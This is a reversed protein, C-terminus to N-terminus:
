GTLRKFSSVADPNNALLEYLTKGNGTVLFPLLVQEMRAKQAQIFALQADLWDKLIRWAVKEAHEVTKSPRSLGPQDNLVAFVGDVDPFVRYYAANETSFGSMTFTIAVPKQEESYETGVQRAGALSLLMVIEGVTKHPDITTTYNKIKKM